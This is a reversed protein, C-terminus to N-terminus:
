IYVIDGVLLDYISLNEKEGDRSVPVSLEQSSAMLKQFQKEKVYDNGATVAVIIAVAIYITTGELWGKSWGERWVGITLSVFAAVLLIQLIKDEFQELVLQTLTKIKISRRSNEGYARIREKLENRDESIGRRQNTRLNNLLGEKWGLNDKLCSVSDSLGDKKLRRNDQQFLDELM